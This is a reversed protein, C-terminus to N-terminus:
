ALLLVRALHLHLQLLGIDVEIEGVSVGQLGAQEQDRHPVEVLAVLRRREIAHLAIRHLGIDDGGGPPLGACPQMALQAPPEAIVDVGGGAQIYGGGPVVREQDALPALLDGLGLGVVLRDGSADLPGTHRPHLQAGGGLPLAVHGLPLLIDPGGSELGV